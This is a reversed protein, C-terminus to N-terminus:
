DMRAQQQQQTDLVASLNLKDRLKTSVAVIDAAKLGKLATVQSADLTVGISKAVAAPSEILAGAFDEDFVARGLVKAYGEKGSM